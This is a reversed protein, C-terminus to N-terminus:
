VDRVIYRVLIRLYEIDLGNNKACVRSSFPHDEDSFLWQWAEQRMTPSRRHDQLERLAQEIMALQIAYIETETWGGDFETKTDVSHTIIHASLRGSKFDDAFTTTAVNKM